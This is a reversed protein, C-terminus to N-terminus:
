PRNGGEQRDPRRDAPRAPQGGPGIPGCHRVLCSPRVHCGRRHRGSGDDYPYPQVVIFASRLGKVTLGGSSVGITRFLGLLRAYGAVLIPSGAALWEPFTHVRPFSRDGCLSRRYHSPRAELSPAHFPQTPLPEAAGRSITCSITGHRELLVEVATLERERERERERLRGVPGAHRKRGTGDVDHRPASPPVGLAGPADREIASPRWVAGRMFGPAESGPPSGGAWCGARPGPLISVASLILSCILVASSRSLRVRRPNHSSYALMAHIVTSAATAIVAPM